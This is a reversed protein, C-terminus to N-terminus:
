IAPSSEPVMPKEALKLLEEDLLDKVEIKKDKAITWESKENKEFIQLGRRYKSSSNTSEDTAYAQLDVWAMNQPKVKNAPNFKAKYLPHNCIDKVLLPQQAQYLVAAIIEWYTFERMKERLTEGSGGKPLDDTFAVRLENLKYTKGTGPPGYFITNLHLKEMEAQQSHKKENLDIYKLLKEIASPVQDILFLLTNELNFSYQNIKSFTSPQRNSSFSHRLPKELKFLYDLEIVPRLHGNIDIIKENFKYPETIIGFGYFENKSLVFLLDGRKLDHTFPYISRSGKGMQLRTLKRYDVSADLYNFTLENVDKFGYWYGSDACRWIENFHNYICKTISNVDLNSDKM